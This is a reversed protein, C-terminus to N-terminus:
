VARESINLRVMEFAYNNSQVIRAEIDDNVWPGDNEAAYGLLQDDHFLNLGTNYAELGAAM